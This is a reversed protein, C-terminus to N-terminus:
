FKYKIKQFNKGSVARSNVAQLNFGTYILKAPLGVFLTDLKSVKKFHHYLFQSFM